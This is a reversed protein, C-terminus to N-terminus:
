SQFPKLEARSCLAIFCLSPFARKKRKYHFSVAIVYFRKKEQKLIKRRFLYLRSFLLYSFGCDFLESCHGRAATLKSRGMPPGGLLGSGVSFKVESCRPQPGCRQGQSRSCPSWAGFASYPWRTSKGREFREASLKLGDIKNMWRQKRENELSVQHVVWDEEPVPCDNEM